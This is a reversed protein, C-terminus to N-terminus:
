GALLTCWRTGGGMVGREMDREVVMVGEVGEMSSGGRGMSMRMGDVMRSAGELAVPCKKAGAMREEGLPVMRITATDLSSRAGVVMAPRTSRADTSLSDMALRTSRVGRDTDARATRIVVTARNNRVATALSSRAAATAVARPTRTAATAPSNRAATALSSAMSLPAAVM